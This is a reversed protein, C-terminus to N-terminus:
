PTSSSALWLWPWDRSARVTFAVALDRQDVAHTMGTIAVRDDDPLLANALNVAGHTANSNRFSLRHVVTATLLTAAHARPVREAYTRQEPGSLV